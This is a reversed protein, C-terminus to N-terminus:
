MPLQLIMPNVHEMLGFWCQAHCYTYWNHKQGTHQQFGSAPYIVNAASDKWM